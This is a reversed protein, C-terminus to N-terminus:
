YGFSERWSHGHLDPQRFTIAHNRLRSEAVSEGAQNATARERDSHPLHAIRSREYYGIRAGLRAYRGYLNIDEGAWGTLRQDYGNLAFFLEKSVLHTGRKGRDAGGNAREPDGPRIADEPRTVVAWPSDVLVQTGAPPAFVWPDNVVIDADIFLLHTIAHDDRVRQALGNRLRTLHFRQDAVRIMEVDAFHRDPPDADLCGVLIRDLGYISRWSPLARVLYDWRRYCTTLAALRPAAIRM